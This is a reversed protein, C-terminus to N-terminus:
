IKANAGPEVRAQAKMFRNGVHQNSPQRTIIRSPRGTGASMTVVGRDGTWDNEFRQKSKSRRAIPLPQRLPQGALLASQRTQVSHAPQGVPGAQIKRNREGENPQKGRDLFAARCDRDLGTLLM